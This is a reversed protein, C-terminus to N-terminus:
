ETPLAGNWRLEQVLPLLDEDPIDNLGMLRVLNSGVSHSFMKAPVVNLPYPSVYIEGPTYRYGIAARQWLDFLQHLVDSLKRPLVMTGGTGVTLLYPATRLKWRETEECIALLCLQTYSLDMSLGILMNASSRDFDDYIAFSALLNGLYPIKKERHERQAALLVGEIVEEATSRNNIGPDFFGDDRL